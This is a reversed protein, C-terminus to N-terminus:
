EHTVETQAPASSKQFQQVAVTAILGWIMGIGILLLEVAGKQNRLWKTM